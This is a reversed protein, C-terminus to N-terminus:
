LTIIEIEEERKIQKAIYGDPKERAIRKREPCGLRNHGRQGCYGCYVTM